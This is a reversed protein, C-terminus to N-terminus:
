FGDRTLVMSGEPNRDHVRCTVDGLVPAFSGSSAAQQRPCAARRGVVVPLVRITWAREVGGAARLENMQATSSIRM